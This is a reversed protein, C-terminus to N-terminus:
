KTEAFLNEPYTATEYEDVWSLLLAEYATTKATEDATAVFYHRVDEFPMEGPEIDDTKMIIYYGENTAVPETFDGVNKLELAAKVANASIESSQETLIYGTEQPITDATYIGGGYTEILAILDEETNVSAHAQKAAGEIIALDAKLQKEYADPDSEELSNLVQTQEPSIPILAWKYADYGDIKYLKVIGGNWYHVMNYPEQDIYQKLLALQEDYVAKIEEESATIDDTIHHELRDFTATTILQELLGDVTIGFGEALIQPIQSISDEVGAATFEQAAAEVYGDYSAQASTRMTEMEEDTFQDLGFEKIKLKACEVQVLQDLYQKKLEVLQEDTGEASLDLGMQEYSSLLNNFSFNFQELTIETDEVVAVVIKEPENASCSCLMVLSLLIAMLKILSKM